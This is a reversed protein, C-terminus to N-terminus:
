LSLTWNKDSPKVDEEYSVTFSPTTEVTFTLRGARRGEQGGAGRGEQETGGQNSSNAEHKM